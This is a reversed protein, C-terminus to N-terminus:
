CWPRTYPVHSYMPQPQNSPHPQHTLPSSTTGDARVPGRSPATSSMFPPRHATPMIPPPHMLVPSGGYIQVNAPAAPHMVPSMMPMGRPHVSGSAATSANQNTSAPGYVSPHMAGPAPYAIMQAPYPSAMPRMAGNHNQSGQIPVWVHQNYAQSPGNVPVRPIPSSAAPYLNPSPSHVLMPSPFASYGPRMPLNSPQISNSYTFTSSRTIHGSPSQPSVPPARHSTGSSAPVQQFARTVDHISMKSPVASSIPPPTEGDESKVDQITFPLATLDDAIGELSNVAPMPEKDAAQSWVAKLHEPDPARAPSDKPTFNLPSKTWSPGFSTSAPTLLSREASDESGKSEPQVDGTTKPLEIDEVSEGTVVGKSNAPLMPLSSSSVLPTITVDTKEQPAPHGDELESSVIFNVSSNPQQATSSPDRYFGVASGPPLKPQTRLRLLQKEAKAPTDEEASESIDGASPEATRASGLSVDSPPHERPQTSQESVQDKSNSHVRRWSALEDLAKPRGSPSNFKPFVAPLHVRPANGTHKTPRPLVVQYHRNEPKQLLVDNLSFTRKNMGEVPPDWSLIDWRVCDYKASLHPQRKPVTDIPRSIKPFKVTVDSATRPSHPPDCGTVAFAEHEHNHQLRPARLAPPLWRGEKPLIRAAALPERSTEGVPEPRGDAADSPADKASDVQMNDLAGKIRSMVDDLAAIPVERFSTFNRQPRHISPHSTGSSFCDTPRVTSLNQNSTLHRETISREATGVAQRETFQRMGEREQPETLSQSSRADGLVDSQLRQGRQSPTQDGSSAALAREAGVYRDFDSFDVIELSEDANHVDPGEGGYLMPPRSLTLSRTPSPPRQGPTRTNSRWSKVHDPSPPEEPAIDLSNRSERSPRVNSRLSSPRELTTPQSPPSSAEPDCALEAEGSSSPAKQGIETVPGQLEKNAEAVNMRLELEAAKRRAREKEKEREEEERQWRQRAKEASIHMATKHVIEVDIEVAKPPYVESPTTTFAVGDTSGKSEQTDVPLSPLPQLPSNSPRRPRSESASRIGDIGPGPPSITERPRSQGYHSAIAPSGGVGSLPLDRSGHVPRPIRNSEASKQLLHVSPGNPAADRGPPELRSDRKSVGHSGSLRGPPYVSDYPELRNSRENFLVRPGEMPSHSPQSSVPSDSAQRSARSPYDKPQTTPSLKSRPWSRDFDDALRDEQAGTESLSRDIVESSTDEMQTNHSNPPREPETPIVNYQRGDGFEIVNDLFNDDDEEEDWHHANPDLHLGRFADAEHPGAGKSQLLEDSKNDDPRATRGQAVEAATPFDTANDTFAVGSTPKSNRWAPKAPLGDKKTLLSTSPATSRPQPQIVKGVHALQSAPPVPVSSQPQQANSPAPTTSTASPTASSPRSWSSGTAASLQPTSTLKATVLRSHSGSPQVAPRPTPSGSKATSIHSSATSPASSTASTKQLFKKNINVASFKKPPLNPFATNSSSNGPPPSQHSPAPSADATLPPSPPGKVSQATDSHTVPPQVSSDVAADTDRSDGMVPGDKSTSEPSGTDARDISAMFVGVKEHLHNQLFHCAKRSTQALTDGQQLSSYESSLQRYRPIAMKPM